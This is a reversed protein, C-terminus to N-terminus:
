TSPEMTSSFQAFGPDAQTGPVDNLTGGAVVARVAKLVGNEYDHEVAYWPESDTAYLFHEWRTTGWWGSASNCEPVEVEVVSLSSPVEENENLGALRGSSYRMRALLSYSDCTVIKIEATVGTEHYVHSGSCRRNARLNGNPDNDFNALSYYYTGGGYSNGYNESVKGTEDKVIEVYCVSGNGDEDVKVYLSEGFEVDFETDWNVPTWLIVADSAAQKSRNLEIVLGFILKVYHTGNPRKYFLVYFPPFISPAGFPNDVNHFASLASPQMRSPNTASGLDMTLKKNEIYGDTLRTPLLFVEKKEEVKPTPPNLLAEQSKVVAEKALKSAEAAASAMAANLAKQVIYDIDTQKQILINDEEM